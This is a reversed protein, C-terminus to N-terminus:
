GVMIVAFFLMGTTCPAQSGRAQQLLVDAADVGHMPSQIKVLITLPVARNRCRKGATVGM